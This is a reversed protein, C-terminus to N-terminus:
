NLSNYYAVLKALDDDKRLDLREKKLYAELSAEQNGLTKLITKKDAKIKTLEDNQALYYHNTAQFAKVKTASGYPQDEFIKKSTRKLLQTKGDALVQYYAAPSAGDIPRYGRRFLQEKFTVHQKDTKITFEVVPQTFIKAEGKEGKFMLVDEVQDYMLEVGDYLTGNAAMVSGKMWTDHLYASGQVDTYLKTQIPTGMNDVIAFQACASESAAILTVATFALIVSLKKM